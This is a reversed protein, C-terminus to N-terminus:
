GWEAPLDTPREKPHLTPLPTHPTAPTTGLAVFTTVTQDLNLVEGKMRCKQGM